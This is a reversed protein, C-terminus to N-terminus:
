EAQVPLPLYSPMAAPKKARTARKKTVGLGELAPAEETPPSVISGGTSSGKGGGKGRSAGAKRGAHQGRTAKPLKALEASVIDSQTRRNARMELLREAEERVKRVERRRRQSIMERVGYGSMFGVCVCFFLLFM